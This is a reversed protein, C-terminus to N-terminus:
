VEARVRNYNRRHRKGIRVLIASLRDIVSLLESLTRDDIDEPIVESLSFAIRRLEEWFLHRTDYPDIEVLKDVLDTGTGSGTHGNRINKPGLLENVRAQLSAQGGQALLHAKLIQARRERAEAMSARLRESSLRALQAAEFLTVDGAVLVRTVDKPFGLVRLYLGVFSNLSVRGRTEQKLISRLHGAVRLLEKRDWRPPRGRNTDTASRREINRVANLMRIAQKEGAPVVEPLRDRLQSLVARIAEPRALPDPTRQRRRSARM